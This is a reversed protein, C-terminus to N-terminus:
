LRISQSYRAYNPKIQLRIVEKLLSDLNDCIMQIRVEKQQCLYIIDYTSFVFFYTPFGVNKKTLKRCIIKGNVGAEYINGGITMKCAPTSSNIETMRREGKMQRKLTTQPCAKFCCGQRMPVPRLVVVKDSLSLGQGGAEM